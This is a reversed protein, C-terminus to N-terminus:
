SRILWIGYTDANYIRVGLDHSDMVIRAAHAQADVRWQYEAVTQWGQGFGRAEPLQQEIQVQYPKHEM